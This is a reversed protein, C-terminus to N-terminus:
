PHFSTRQMHLLLAKSNSLAQRESVYQELKLTQWQICRECEDIKQELAVSWVQALM